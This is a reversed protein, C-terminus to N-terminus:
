SGQYISIDQALFNDLYQYRAQLYQKLHQNPKQCSRGWWIPHTLIQLKEISSEQNNIQCPCNEAWVGRSDSLYKVKNFFYPDYTSIFSRFRRGLFAQQPRHFSVIKKVPFYYNLIMIQKQIEKKPTMKRVSIQKILQEPEFHLGIQHNLDIIKKIIQQYFPTLVNYFPAKLRLFYTAQIKEQNEIRAM